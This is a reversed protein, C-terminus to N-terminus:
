NLGRLVDRFYQFNRPIPAHREHAQAIHKFRLNKITRATYTIGFNDGFDIMIISVIM